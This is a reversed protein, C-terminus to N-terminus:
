CRGILSEVPYKLVACPSNGAERCGDRFRQLWGMKPEM